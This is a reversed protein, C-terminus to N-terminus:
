ITLLKGSKFEKQNEAMAKTVGTNYQRLARAAVDGNSWPTKPQAALEAVAGAVLVEGWRDMFWAPMNGDAVTFEPRFVVDVQIHASLAGTGTLGNMYGSGSIDTGSAGATLYSVTGSEVYVVFHESGTTADQYRVFGINDDYAVRLGTQIVTAVDELDSCGSFDLDTVSYTSDDITITVAGDTVAQWDAITTTGVTGCTLMLDDLDANPIHRSRFRLDTEYRLEYTCPDYEMSNVRVRKIRHVFADYKHALSYDQQFAVVPILDLDDYWAKTKECFRRAAKKLALLCISSTDCGPLEMTMYPYLSSLATIQAM